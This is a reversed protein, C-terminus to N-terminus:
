HRGEAEVVSHLIPQFAVWTNETLQNVRPLLVSLMIIALFYKLITSM